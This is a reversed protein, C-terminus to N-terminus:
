APLTAGFRAFVLMLTTQSSLLTNPTKTQQQKKVMSKVGRTNPITTKQHWINTDKDPIESKFNV